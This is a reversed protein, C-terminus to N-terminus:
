NGISLASNHLLPLQSNMDPVNHRKEELRRTLSENRRPRKMGKEAVCESKRKDEGEGMGGEEKFRHQLDVAGPDTGTDSCHSLPGPSPRNGPHNLWSQFKGHFLMGYIFETWM